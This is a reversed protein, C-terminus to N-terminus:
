TADRTGVATRNGNADVTASIRNKIDAIDRFVATTTGGGSAKGTLVALILKWAGRMSIAVGDNDVAEDHIADVAAATLAMSDGAQASTKAANYAATLQVATLGAGAAGVTTILTAVDATQKTDGTVSGVAGTVSGVAGTTTAVTCTSPFTVSTTATVAAGGLKTANVAQDAALQAGTIGTLGAGAAGIQATDTEIDTEKDRIHELTDTGAAWTAGKIETFAAALQTQTPQITAAGVSPNITVGAGCTIAQTKITDVNVNEITTGYKNNFYNASVIQLDTYHVLFGDVDYFTIRANGYFNLQAATLELDYMGDTSSVVLAMDNTGGSATPSFSARVVATGDNALQYIQVVLATVTLATEATKGDTPDVLPGVAIRTATNTKLEYM